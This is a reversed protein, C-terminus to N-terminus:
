ESRAFVNRQHHRRFIGIAGEAVHGGDAGKLGILGCDEPDRLIPVDVGSAQWAFRGDHCAEHPVDGGPTGRNRTGAFDWGLHIFGKRSVVEDIIGHVIPELFEADNRTLRGAVRL